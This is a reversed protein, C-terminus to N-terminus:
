VQFKFIFYSLISNFSCFYVFFETNILSCIKNYRYIFCVKGIYAAKKGFPITKTNFNYVLIYYKGFKLNWSHNSLAYPYIYKWFHHVYCECQWSENIRWRASLQFKRRFKYYVFFCGARRFENCLFYIYPSEKLQQDRTQVEWVAIEYEPWFQKFIMFGVKM